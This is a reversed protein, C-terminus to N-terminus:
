SRKRLTTTKPDPKRFQVYHAPPAQRVARAAAIIVLFIGTNELIFNMKLGGVHWGLLADVHHLSSARIIVFSLTFLVGFLALAYQGYAGRTIRLFHLFVGTAILAICGLSALQILRRQGYVGHAKAFTKGTQWFWMQLDLQKNIALAFMIIGLTLWFVASKNSRAASQDHRWRMATWICLLSALAYGAVTAWGMVTPDGPGPKWHGSEFAAFASSVIGQLVHGNM